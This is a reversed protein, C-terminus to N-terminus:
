AKNPIKMKTGVNREDVVRKSNNKDVEEEEKVRAKGMHSTDQTPYVGRAQSGRERNDISSPGKYKPRHVIRISRLSSLGCTLEKFCASHRVCKKKINLLEISM